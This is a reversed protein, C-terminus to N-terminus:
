NIAYVRSPVRWVVVLMDGHIAGIDEDAVFGAYRM